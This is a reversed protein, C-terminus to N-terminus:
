AASCLSAAMVLACADSLLSLGASQNAQLSHADVADKIVPVPRGDDGTIEMMDHM